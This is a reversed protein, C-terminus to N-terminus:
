LVHRSILPCSALTLERKGGHSGQAHFEPQGLSQPYVNKVQQDTEGARM